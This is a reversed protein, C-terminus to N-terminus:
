WMLCSKRDRNIGDYQDVLTEVLCHKALHQFLEESTEYQPIKNFIIWNLKTADPKEEMGHFMYHYFLIQIEYEETFQSLFGTSWVIFYSGAAPNGSKLISYRLRTM